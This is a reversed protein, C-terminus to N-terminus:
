PTALHLWPRPVSSFPWPSMWVLLALAIGFWLVVQRHQSGDNGDARKVLLKGVHVCAVALLMAVGHEVAWFRLTPDKMAASYDARATSATPSWVFYLGL